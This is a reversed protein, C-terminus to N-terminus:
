GASHGRALMLNRAYLGLGLGQGIAFVPDHRYIAYGFLAVGGLVSLVWFTVPVVVRHQQESAWWQLVFRSGFLAQGALGIATWLAPNSWEKM